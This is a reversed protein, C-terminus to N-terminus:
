LPKPRESCCPGYTTEIRTQTDPMLGGVVDLLDAEHVEIPEAQLFQQANKNNTKM